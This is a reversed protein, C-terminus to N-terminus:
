TMPLSDKKESEIDSMIGNIDLSFLLTGLVTGQPTGSM